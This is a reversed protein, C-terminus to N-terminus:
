LGILMNTHSQNDNNWHRLNAESREFLKATKVGTVHGDVYNVNVNGRHRKQTAKDIGVLGGFGSNHERLWSSIDLRGYGTYSVPGHVNYLLNLIGPLLWMLNADGLSIMESPAVVASEPTPMISTSDNPDTLHGGLGLSSLAFQVGNANYGYSGLPDGSDTAALTLGSYSPCRYLDNTWDSQTYPRIQQHWFPYAVTEGTLDFTFIPFARHDAAYLTVGLGLQRLNNLCRTTRASEKAAALGPLLLAALIAIIAIVVLLEVLTFGLSLRVCPFPAEGKWKPPTQRSSEGAM